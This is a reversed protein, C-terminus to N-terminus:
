KDNDDGKESVCITKFECQKCEKGNQELYPSKPIKGKMQASFLALCKEKVSEILPHFYEIHFSIYEQNNKNEYILLADKIEILWMNIMTEVVHKKLSGTKLIEIFEDNSIAQIQIVVNLDSINIVADVIGKINYNCDSVVCHKDLVKIQRMKEFCSIWKDKIFLQTQLDSYSEKNEALGRNRYILRRPCETIHASSFVSNYLPTPSFQIDKVMDNFHKTLNDQKIFKIKSSM